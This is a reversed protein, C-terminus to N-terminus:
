DTTTNGADAVFRLVKGNICYRLGTPSPGDDFVHGLHIGSSASRVETRTMGHSHDEHFSLAGSIPSFFSPWGCASDFKSDSRFLAVGTIPDVFTGARRENLHAGSFPAETGQHFAIHQQEPSLLQRGLWNWFQLPEGEYGSCRSVERDAAILVVTPTRAIPLHLEDGPLSQVLPSTGPGQIVFPIPSRWSELIDHKFRECALCNEQMFVVLRYTNKM